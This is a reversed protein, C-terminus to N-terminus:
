DLRYGDGEAHIFEGAADIKEKLRQLYHELRRPPSGPVDRTPKGHEGRFMAQILEARLCPRPRKEALRRLIEFEPPTLTTILQKNVRVQWGMGTFEIKTHGPGAEEADPKSAAAGASWPRFQPLVREFVPSFLEPRPARAPRVLGRRKLRHLGATSPAEGGLIRYLDAREDAELSDLIKRCEAKVDAHLSLREAADPSLADADTAAAFYLTRMLGAHGGGMEFLRRVIPDSIPRPPAQRAALRRLMHYGDAESYPPVPFTHGAPSILEFLEEYERAGTRLFAPERRTLTLYVLRVKYNDRLARLDSFLVPPAQSFLDDCDDLILVVHQAGARVIHGVARDLNRKGLREPNSQAEEWLARVDARMAAFAGGPEELAQDLQDLAHLYLDHPPSHGFPKCNLYLFVTQAADSRVYHQRVEPLTLHRAINSKGSSGVGVLACSEGSQLRDVIPRLIEARFEIPMPLDPM